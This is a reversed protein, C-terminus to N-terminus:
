PNRMQPIQVGKRNSPIAEPGGRFFYIMSCAMYIGWTTSKGAFFTFFTFLDEGFGPYLPVVMGDCQSIEWYMGSCERSELPLFM